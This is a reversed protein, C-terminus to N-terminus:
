APATVKPLALDAIRTSIDNRVGEPLCDDADFNEVSPAMFDIVDQWSGASIFKDRWGGCIACQCLVVAQGPVGDGFTAM